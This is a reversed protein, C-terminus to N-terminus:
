AGEWTQGLMPTHRVRKTAQSADCTNLWALLTSDNAPTVYESGAVTASMGAPFSGVYIVDQASLQGLNESGIKREGFTITNSSGDLMDKLGIAPGYHGFLGNPPGGVQGFRFDLSPGISAFDSNGPATV